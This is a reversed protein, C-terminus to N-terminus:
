FTSQVGVKAVNAQSASIESELVYVKQMPQNAPSLSQFTTPTGGGGGYMNAISPTTGATSPTNGGGGTQANGDEPFKKSLIAAIQAAGQIGTLIQLPISFPFPIEAAIKMIAQSTNIATSTASTAKNVKFAAKQIKKQKKENGEALNGLFEFFSSSIDGMTDSVAKYNELTAINDNIRKLRLEESSQGMKEDGEIVKAVYEDRKATLEDIRALETETRIGDADANQIELKLLADYYDYYAQKQRALIDKTTEEDNNENKLLENYYNNAADLNERYLQETAVEQHKLNKNMEAAVDKNYTKLLIMMAEDYQAQTWTKNRLYEKFKKQDEEYEVKLKYFSGYYKKQLEIFYEDASKNMSAWKDQADKIEKENDKKYIVELKKGFIEENKLREADYAQQEKLSQSRYEREYQQVRQWHEQQLKEYNMNGPSVNSMIETEKAMLKDYDSKIKIVTSVHRESIESFTKMSEAKADNVSAETKTIDGNLLDLEQQAKRYQESLNDMSKAHANMVEGGDKMTSLFEEHAEQVAKEAEEMKKYNNYVAYGIAAIAGAILLIPGATAALSLLAKGMGGIQKIISGFNINKLSSGMANLKRTAGEFDLNKVSTGLGEFNGKLSEIPEGKMNNVSESADEINDRLEGARRAAAEFEASNPDLNALESQLKKVEARMQAISMASKDQILLDIVLQEAM